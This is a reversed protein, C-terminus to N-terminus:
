SKRMSGAREITVSATNTQSTQLFWEKNNAELALVCSIVLIAPSNYM